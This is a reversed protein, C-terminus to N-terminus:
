GIRSHLITLLGCTLLGCAAYGHKNNLFCECVCVFLPGKANERSRAAVTADVERLAKSEAWICFGTTVVGVALIKAWEGPASAALKKCELCRPSPKATQPFVRGVICKPPSLSLSFLLYFIFPPHLIYERFFVRSSDQVRWGQSVSSARLLDNPNTLELTLSLFRQVHSLGSRTEGSSGFSM